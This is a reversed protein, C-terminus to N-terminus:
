LCGSCWKQDNVKGGMVM